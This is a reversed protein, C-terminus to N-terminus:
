ADERCFSCIAEKLKNQDSRVDRLFAECNQQFVAPDFSHIYSETEARIDDQFPDIQFGLGYKEVIAALYTGKAVIIPKKFLAADYIRNPVAQKVEPSDLSYVSNILDVKSYLLPKQENQYSGYFTVNHVGKQRCFSELDCDSFTSGAYQLSYKSDNAFAEILKINLQYYRVYGLFGICLSKKARLDDANGVVGSENTINHTILYNNIGGFYELYGKSSFCSFAANRIVKEVRRAFFGYKEYTYDRYDYIYRGKYRKWLTPGLIVAPMTTFVILKDYDNKNILKKVFALYQFAPILKSLSNATTIHHFTYETGFGLSKSTTACNEMRDFFCADYEVNEQRLVDEYHQIYPMYTRGFFGILLMRM